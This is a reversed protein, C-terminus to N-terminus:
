EGRIQPVPGPQILSTVREFWVKGGAEVRVSRGNGLAVLRDRQQGGWRNLLALNDPQTFAWAEDIREFVKLLLDRANATTYSAAKKEKLTMSELRSLVEDDSGFEVANLYQRAINLDRGANSNGLCFGGGALRGLVQAQGRESVGYLQGGTKAAAKLGTLQGSLCRRFSRSLRDAEEAADRHNEAWEALRKIRPLADLLVIELSVERQHQEYAAVASQLLGADWLRDHCEKGIAYIAKSAECWVLYGHLFQSGEPNCIPCPAYTNDGRVHKAIHIESVVKVNTDKPPKETSISPYTEPRGTSKVHRRFDSAVTSPPFTPFQARLVLEVAEIQRRAQPM